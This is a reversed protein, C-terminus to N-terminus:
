PITKPKLFPMESGSRENELRTNEALLLPASGRM